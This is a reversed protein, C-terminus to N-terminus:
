MREKLDYVKNNLVIGGLKVSENLKKEIILSSAFFIGTVLGTLYIILFWFGIRYISEKIFGIKTEPMEM